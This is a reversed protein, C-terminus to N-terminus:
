YGLREGYKEIMHDIRARQSPTFNTRDLTSGIFGAEVDSVECDARDLANLFKIRDWDTIHSPGASTPGMAARRPKM